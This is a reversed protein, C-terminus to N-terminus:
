SPIERGIAARTATGSAASLHSSGDMVINRQWGQGQGVDYFMSIGGHTQVIRRFSIRDGVANLPGLEPLGGTLCRLAAGGDVPGDHRNM